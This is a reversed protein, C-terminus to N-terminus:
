VIKDRPLSPFPESHLRSCQKLLLDRSRGCSFSSVESSFGEPHSKTFGQSGGRHLAAGGWSKEGSERSQQGEKGLMGWAVPDRLLSQAGVPLSTIHGELSTLSVSVASPRQESM